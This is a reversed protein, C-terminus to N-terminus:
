WELDYLASRVIGNINEIEEKHLDLDDEPLLAEINFDKFSDCTLPSNLSADPLLFANTQVRISTNYMNRCIMASLLFESSQKNLNVPTWFRDASALRNFIHYMFCCLGPSLLEGNEPMEKIVNYLSSKVDVESFEIHCKSNVKYANLDFKEIVDVAEHFANVEEVFIGIRAKRSAQSVIDSAHVENELGNFKKQYRFLSKLGSVMAVEIADLNVNLSSNYTGRVIGM